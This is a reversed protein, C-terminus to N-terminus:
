DEIFLKNVYDEFQEKNMKALRRLEGRDLIVEKDWRTGGTLGRYYERQPTDPLEHDSLRVEYGDKKLYISSGFKSKEGSSHVRFAGLKKAQRDIAETVSPYSIEVDPFGESINGKILPKDKRAFNYLYSNKVEELFQREEQLKKIRFNKSEDEFFKRHEFRNQFGSKLADIEDNIQKLTSTDPSEQVLKKETKVIKFQPNEQLFKEVKKLPAPRLKDYSSHVKNVFGGGNYVGERKGDSIIYNPLEVEKVRLKELANIKDKSNLSSKMVDDVQNSTGRLDIFGGEPTNTKLSEKFSGIFDPTEQQGIRKAVGLLTPSQEPIKGSIINEVQKASQKQSIGELVDGVIPMKFVSSLLPQKRVFDIVRNGSGSPNSKDIPQKVQKAVVQLQRLIKVDEKTFGAEKLFQMDKGLMREIANDLKEPQILDDYVPLNDADLIPSKTVPDIVPKKTISSNYIKNLFGNRFIEKADDGLIEKASKVGDLGSESVSLFKNLLQEDTLNEGENAIFKRIVSNAEKSDFNQKYYANAKRAQKILNLAQEDGQIIGTEFIDKTFNDLAKKANGVVAASANDSVPLANFRKRLAEITYFKVDKVNKTTLLKELADINKAVGKSAVVIEPDYDKISTKLDNILPLLNEKSISARKTAPIALDYATSKAKFAKDAADQLRKSLGEGLAQNTKPEGKYLSLFNETFQKSQTDKFNRALDAADAGLKGQQALNFVARAEDDGLDASSLSIPKALDPMKQSIFQEIASGGKKVLKSVGAMGAGVIPSLVGGITGGVAAGALRDQDPSAMGAGTATGTVAGQLADKARATIFGSSQTLWKAAKPSVKALGTLGAAGGAGFIGGTLGGAITSVPSEQIDQKLQKEQIGRSEDYLEGFSRDKVFPSAIAAGLLAKAEDGFGLTAGQEFGRGMAGASEELSKVQEGLGASQLARKALDYPLRAIDVGKMFAQGTPPPAAATKQQPIIEKEIATTIQEETMEDPFEIVQDNVEVLPM